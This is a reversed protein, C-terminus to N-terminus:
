RCSGRRPCFQIAVKAIEAYRGVMVPMVVVWAGTVSHSSVTGGQDLLLTMDMMGRRAFLENSGSATSTSLAAKSSAHAFSLCDPLVKVRGAYSSPARSTSALYMM